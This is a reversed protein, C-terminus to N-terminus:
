VHQLRFAESTLNWFPQAGQLTKRLCWRSVGHHTPLALCIRLYARLRSTCFCLGFTGPKRKHCRMQQGIPQCMIVHYGSEHNFQQREFKSWAYALSQQSRGIHGWSPKKQISISYIIIKNTIYRHIVCIQHPSKQRCMWHNYWHWRGRVALSLSALPWLPLPCRTVWFLTSSPLESRRNLVNGSKKSCKSLHSAHERAPPKLSSGKCSFSNTHTSVGWVNLSRGM